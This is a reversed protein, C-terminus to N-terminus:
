QGLFMIFTNGDTYKQKTNGKTQVIMRKQICKDLYIILDPEMKIEGM